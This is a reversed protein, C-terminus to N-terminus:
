REWGTSNRSRRMAEITAALGLLNFNRMEAAVQTTKGAEFMTRVNWTGLTITTETSIIAMPEHTELCIRSEGGLKM